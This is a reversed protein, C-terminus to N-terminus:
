SKETYWICVNIPIPGGAEGWGGQSQTVHEIHIKPNDELWGNIDKELNIPNIVHLVKVKM